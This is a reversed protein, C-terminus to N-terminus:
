LIVNRVNNTMCVCFLDNLIKQISSSFDHNNDYLTKEMLCSDNELSKGVLCLLKGDRISPKKRKLISEFFISFIRSSVGSVHWCRFGRGLQHSERNLADVSWRIMNFSSPDNVNPWSPGHPRGTTPSASSADCSSMSTAAFFIWPKKFYNSIEKLNYLLIKLEPDWRSRSNTRSVIDLATSSFRGLICHTIRLMARGRRIMRFIEPEELAGHIVIFSNTSIYDTRPRWIM